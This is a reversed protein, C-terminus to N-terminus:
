TFAKCLTIYPQSYTINTINLCQSLIFVDTYHLIIHCHLTINHCYLTIYCESLAFADSVRLPNSCHSILLLGGGVWGQDLSWSNARGHYLGNLIQEEMIYVMQFKSRWSISWKSNAREHWMLTEDLTKIYLFNLDSYVNHKYVGLSYFSPCTTPLPLDKLQENISVKWFISDKVLLIDCFCLISANPIM